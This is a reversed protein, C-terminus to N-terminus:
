CDQSPRIRLFLGDWYLDKGIPVAKFVTPVAASALIAEVSIEGPVRSDFTKFHGTLINVAGLLLRPSTHTIMSQLEEFDIHNELLARFDLFEKRRFYPMMMELVVEDRYPNPPLLPVKGSEAIRLYLDTISAFTQKEVDCVIL